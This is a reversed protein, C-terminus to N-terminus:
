SGLDQCHPGQCNLRLYGKGDWRLYFTTLQPARSPQQIARNRKSKALLDAILCVSEMEKADTTICIDVAM